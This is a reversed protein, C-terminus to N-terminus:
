SAIVLGIQQQGNNSSYIGDAQQLQETDTIYNQQLISHKRYIGGLYLTKSGRSSIKFWMSLIDGEMWKDVKELQLGDRILAVLRCHGVQDWTKTKVMYYGPTVLESDSDTKFVNSESVLMVDPKRTDLIYQINETKNKWFKNGSNWHTVKLSHPTNGNIM